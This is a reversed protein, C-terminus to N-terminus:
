DYMECPPFWIHWSPSCLKAYRYAYITSINGMQGYITVAEENATYLTLLFPVVTACVTFVGAMLTRLKKKDLVVGNM